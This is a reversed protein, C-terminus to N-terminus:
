WMPRVMEQPHLEPSEVIPLCVMCQSVGGAMHYKRASLSGSMKTEERHNGQIEM